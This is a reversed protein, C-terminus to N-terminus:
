TLKSERYPVHSENTNLAYVVNFLTYILKNVETNEVFISGALDVFNMKGSPLVGSVHSVNVILGKHSWRPLDM